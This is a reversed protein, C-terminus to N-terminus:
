CSQVCSRLLQLPQLERMGIGDTVSQHVAARMVRSRFSDGISSSLSSRLKIGKAGNCRGSSIAPMSATLGVEGVQRLDSAEVSSKVARHRFYRLAERQRTGKPVFANAAVTKM